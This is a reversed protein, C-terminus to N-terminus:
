SGEAGITQVADINGDCSEEWSQLCAACLRAKWGFAWVTFGAPDPCAAPKHGCHVSECDCRRDPM